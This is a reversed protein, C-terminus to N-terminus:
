NPPFDNKRKSSRSSLLVAIGVAAAVAAGSVLILFLPNALFGPEDLVLAAFM